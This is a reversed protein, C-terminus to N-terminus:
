VKEIDILGKEVLAEVFSLIDKELQKEDIDYRNLLEDKVLKLERKESLIEWIISGVENLSFYEQTKTDLLITEDDVKQLFLTNPINIKSDLTM